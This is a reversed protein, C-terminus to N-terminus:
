SIVPQLKLPFTQVMISSPPLAAQLQPLKMLVILVTAIVVEMVISMVMVQEM